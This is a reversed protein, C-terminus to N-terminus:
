SNLLSCICLCRGREENMANNATPQQSPSRVGSAPEGAIKVARRARGKADMVNIMWCAPIGISVAEVVITVAFPPQEVVHLVPIM